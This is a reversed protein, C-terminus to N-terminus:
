DPMKDAALRKIQLMRFTSEVELARRSRRNAELGMHGGGVWYSDPSEQLYKRPFLYTGEETGFSELHRLANRGWVHKRAVPFRAM